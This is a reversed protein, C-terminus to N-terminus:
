AGGGEVQRLISDEVSKTLKVYGLEIAKDYDIIVLALEEMLEQMERGSHAYLEAINEFNFDMFRQATKKLFEKEADSVKSSEIKAELEVVKSNDACMEFSPKDGKIEYIPTVVKHTYKETVERKGVASDLTDLEVGNSGDGIDNLIDEIEQADFGLLDMDYGMFDLDSLEEKLIEFDWGANLAIKNDAIVLARRQEESLGSVEICPLVEVPNEAWDVKNLQKVAELRGHGAILVGKEDILLPNTFGYEKISAMIQGVQKTSHTRSNKDYPTITDIARLQHEYHKM